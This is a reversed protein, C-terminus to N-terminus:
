GGQIRHISNTAVVGPKGYAILIAGILLTLASEWQSVDLEPASAPPDVWSGTSSTNAAYSYSFGPPCSYVSCGNGQEGVSYSDGQGSSTQLNVVTRASNSNVSLGVTVNWGVIAGQANTTFTFLTPQTAISPEQSAIDASTLQGFAFSVPTVTQIVDPALAQSLVVDGTIQNVTDSPQGSENTTTMLPGTYDWTVQANVASALLFLFLFKM